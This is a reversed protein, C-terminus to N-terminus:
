PGRNELLHTSFFSGPFYGLISQGSLYFFFVPIHHGLLRLFICFAMALRTCYQQSNLSLITFYEHSKARHLDDQVNVLSLLDTFSSSTLTSPTHPSLEKSNEWLVFCFFPTTTLHLHPILFPSLVNPSVLCIQISIPHIWYLSLNIILSHSLFISLIFDGSLQVKIPPLASNQETKGSAAACIM